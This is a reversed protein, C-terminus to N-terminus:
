EGKKEVEGMVEATHEGLAPAPEIRAIFDDLRIPCAPVRIDGWQPHHHDVIMGSARLQENALLEATDLVAGCPVGFKSLHEM